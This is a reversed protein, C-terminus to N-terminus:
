YVPIYFSHSAYVHTDNMCSAHNNKILTPTLHSIFLSIFPSIISSLPRTPFTDEKATNYLGYRYHFNNCHHAIIASTIHCHTYSYPISDFYSIAFLFTILFHILWISYFISFWFFIRKIFPNQLWFTTLFRRIALSLMCMQFSLSAWLPLLYVVFYHM